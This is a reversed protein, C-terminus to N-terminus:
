PRAHVHRHPQRGCQVNRLDAYRRRDPGGDVFFKVKDSGAPAAYFMGPAYKGNIELTYNVSSNPKLDTITYKYLHRDKDYPEVEVIGDKYFFQDDDWKLTCSINSNTRWCVTMEGLEGPYVLYPGQVLEPPLSSNINTSQMWINEWKGSESNRKAVTMKDDTIRYVGFRVADDMHRNQIGHWEFVNESGDHGALISIVNYGEIIEWLRLAHEETWWAEKDGWPHLAFGFLGYHQALIVPRGSDGVQSALDQELFQLSMEAPNGYSQRKRGYENNGPYREDDDLGAYENLQVFHVDDWDWSYHLGNESRNVVGVRDKNREIIQRRVYGVRDKSTSSPAGDHNGAGEYVPYQVLGEKGTLGWHATFKQWDEPSGSNTLDGTLIVGRLKTVEGGLAAPYATGPLANMAKITAALSDGEPEASYHQDSIHLFTVDRGGPEASGAVEVDAFTARHHRSGDRNGATVALGALIKSPMDVWVSSGVQSWEKGNSSTYGTFTNDTRVLKVWAPTAVDNTTSVDTAGDGNSRYFLRLGDHVSLLLAVNRSGEGLTKRLMVGVKPNRNRGEMTEIRAKIEGDSDIMTYAYQFNDIGHGAEGIDRGSGRVTFTGDDSNAGGWPRQEYGIFATEWGAPLVGNTTFPISTAAWAEGQSNAVRCRYYYDTWPQLGSIETSFARGTEQVGIQKAHEWGDVNKGGDVRGWYITVETPSVAEYLIKGSVTASDSSVNSVWDGNNVVAPLGSSEYSLHIRKHMPARWETATRCVASLTNDPTIRFVDLEGNSSAWNIGRWVNDVGGGQHGVMILIVNYDQLVKYCKDAASYTWWNDDIPRFHQILVVPRGSSGVNEWLYEELFDRANLPDHAKGYTDAEGHWVNGPFLNVNVFHIGDWDWSYHYGNSSINSILGLEKRVQNRAKMQNFVFLNENLDHNGVAEFVPFKCRGEGNVGFDATFNAWQTPYKSAVAGDNILDGAMIVDYPTEVVGGITDPYAVGPLVNIVDVMPSKVIITEDDHSTRAGYHIDSYGFFTIDAAYVRSCWLATVVLLMSLAPYFSCRGAIMAPSCAIAGEDRIGHVRDSRGDPAWTTQRRNMTM